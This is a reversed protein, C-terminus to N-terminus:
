TVNRAVHARWLSKFPHYRIGYKKRHCFFAVLCTTFLRDWQNQVAAPGAVPVTSSRGLASATQASGELTDTQNRHHKACTYQSVVNLKPPSQQIRIPRTAMNTHWANNEFLTRERVHMHRWPLIDSVIVPQLTVKVARRRNVVANQFPNGLVVEGCLDTAM